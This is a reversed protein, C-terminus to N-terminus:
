GKVPHWLMPGYKAGHTRIGEETFGPRFVFTGPALTLERPTNAYHRRRWREPTYRGEGGLDEILFNRTKCVSSWILEYHGSGGERYWADVAALARNSLRCFPNFARVRELEGSPTNVLMHWWSWAPNEAHDQITTSLLDANSSRLRDFLKGWQGTFRVDYEVIWYYDYGPREGYFALIPLDNDGGPASWNTDAIKRPYPLAALDARRYMRLNEEPTPPLLAEDNLYGVLWLPCDVIDTRLREVERRIMPNYFHTRYLIAENSV